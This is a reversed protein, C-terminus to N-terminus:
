MSGINITIVDVNGDDNIDTGIIGDVGQGGGMQTIQAFSGHNKFNPKIYAKKSNIKM